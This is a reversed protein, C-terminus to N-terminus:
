TSRQLRDIVQAALGVFAIKQSIDVQNPDTDYAHRVDILSMITKALAEDITGRRALEIAAGKLTRIPIDRAEVMDVLLTEMQHWTGVFQSVIDYDVLLPKESAAPLAAKALEESAQELSVEVGLGKWTKLRGVISAIHPRVTFLAVIAVIPWAMTSAFALWLKAWEIDM